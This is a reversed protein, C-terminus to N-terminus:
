LVVGLTGSDAGAGPWTGPGPSGLRPYPSPCPSPCPGPVGEVFYLVFQSVGSCYWECM